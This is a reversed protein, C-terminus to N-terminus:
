FNKNGYDNKIDLTHHDQHMSYLDTKVVAKKGMKELITGYSCGIM